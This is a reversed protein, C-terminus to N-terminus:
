KKGSWKRVQQFGSCTRRSMCQLLLFVLASSTLNISQVAKQVYKAKEHLQLLKHVVKRPLLQEKIIQKGCVLKLPQNQSAQDNM